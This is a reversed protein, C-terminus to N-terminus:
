RLAITAIALAAVALIALSAKFAPTSHRWGLWRWKWLADLQEVSLRDKADAM